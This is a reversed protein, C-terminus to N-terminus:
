NYICGVGPHYSNGCEGCVHRAAPRMVEARNSILNRKVFGWCYVTANVLVVSVAFLAVAAVMGLVM